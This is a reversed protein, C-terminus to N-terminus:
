PATAVMAVMRSTRPGWPVVGAPAEPVRLV